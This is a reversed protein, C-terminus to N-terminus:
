CRKLGTGLFSITSTFLSLKNKCGNVIQLHRGNALLKDDDAVSGTSFSTEEDDKALILDRFNVHGCNKFIVDSVDFNISFLHSAVENHCKQASYEVQRRHETTASLCKYM